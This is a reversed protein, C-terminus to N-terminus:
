LQRYGWQGSISQLKGPPWSEKAPNWVVPLRVGFAQLWNFSLKNQDNVRTVHLLPWWTQFWGWVGLQAGLAAAKYSIYKIQKLDWQQKQPTEAWLLVHKRVVLFHIAPECTTFFPEESAAPLIKKKKRTSSATLNHTLDLLKYTSTNINIDSFLTLKKALVMADHSLRKFTDQFSELNIFSNGWHCLYSM